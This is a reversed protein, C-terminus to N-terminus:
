PGGSDAYGYCMAPMVSPFVLCPSAIKTLHRTGSRFQCRYSHFFQVVKNMASDCRLDISVAESIDKLKLTWLHYHEDCFYQNWKEALGVVSTM